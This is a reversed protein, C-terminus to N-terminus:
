IIHSSVDQPQIILLGLPFVTAALLWRACFSLLFSMAYTRKKYAVITIVVAFLIFLGNIYCPTLCNDLLGMMWVFIASLFIGFFLEQSGTMRKKLEKEM